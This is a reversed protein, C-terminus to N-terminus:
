RHNALNKRSTALMFISYCLPLYLAKEFKSFIVVFCVFSVFDLCFAM